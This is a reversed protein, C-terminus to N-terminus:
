NDGAGDDIWRAILAIDAEPLPADLPMRLEHDDGTLYFNILLSDGSDGPIVGTGIVQEHITEPDDFVRSARMNLTSHCAATACSPELIATQIYRLSAPRSDEETGCGVAALLSVILLANRVRSRYV